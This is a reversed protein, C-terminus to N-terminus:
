KVDRYIDDLEKQDVPQSSALTWIRVHSSTTRSHRERTHFGDGTAIVTYAVPTRYSVLIVFRKTTIEIQNAQKCTNGMKGRLDCTRSVEVDRPRSTIRDYDSILAEAEDESNNSRFERTLREFRADANTVRARLIEMAYKIANEATDASNYARAAARLTADSEILHDWKSM